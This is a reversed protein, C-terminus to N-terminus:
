KKYDELIKIFEGIVRMGAANEETLKKSQCCSLCM